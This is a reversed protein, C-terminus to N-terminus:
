FRKHQAPNKQNSCCNVIYPWCEARIQQENQKTCDNIVNNLQELLEGQQYQKKQIQQSILDLQARNCYNGTARGAIEELLEKSKQQQGCDKLILTYLYELKDDIKEGATSLYNEFARIAVPCNSLDEMALNYALQAAQKAIEVPETNLRNNKQRQQLDSAKILLDVAEAPSSEVFALAGVYLILPTQFKETNALRSLLAEYEEPNSRWITLAAFEAEFVNLQQLHQETLAGKDLKCGLDKLIITGLFTRIYPRLLATKELLHPAYQKQVGALSLVLEIDESCGSQLLEETLKELEAPEATGQLKIKGITIKFATSQRMDSRGMLEDFAKEAPAKYVPDARALLALTRARLFQAYATNRIQNLSETRASIDLLIEDRQPAESCLALYFDIECKNLITTYIDASLKRWIGSAGYKEDWDNGKYNEITDKLIEQEKAIRGLHESAGTALEQLKERDESSSFRGNFEYGARLEFGQQMFAEATSKATEALRDIEEATPSVGAGASSGFLPFLVVCLVTATKSPIGVGIVGDDPIYYRDPRGRLFSQIDKCSAAM